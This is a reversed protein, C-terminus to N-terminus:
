GEQGDIKDVQALALKKLQPLVVLGMDDYPTESLKASEEIWNFLEEVVLVIADEALDLGKSKINEGLAKIDYAKEM